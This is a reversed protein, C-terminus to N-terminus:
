SRGSLLKIRTQLRSLLCTKRSRVPRLPLDDCSTRNTSSAPAQQHYRSNLRGHEVPTIPIKVNRCPTSRDFMPYNPGSSSLSLSVHATSTSPSCSSSVISSALKISARATSRPCCPSPAVALPEETMASTRCWCSGVLQTGRTGLSSTLISKACPSHSSFCVSGLKWSHWRRSHKGVLSSSHQFQLWILM